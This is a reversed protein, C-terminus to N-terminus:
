TMKVGPGRTVKKRAASQSALGDFQGDADSVGRKTRRFTIGCIFSKRHGWNSFKHGQLFFTRV